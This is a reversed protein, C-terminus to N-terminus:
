LVVEKRPHKGALVKRQQRENVHTYIQTTSISSHGLIQQIYRIDVGKELLLTAVSHRFMHPTVHRPIGAEKCRQKLMIRASQEVYRNKRKNTFFWPTGEPLMRAHEKLLSLTEGHCVQVVREKEGKGMIRVFGKKLDVNERTLTCIESIRAGTAFLLEILAIERVIVAYGPLTKDEFGNKLKYLYRFLKKIEGLTLTKPLMKPERIQVKMKRFPNVTITDEAELYTFFAKLTAVKRKVTKEKGKEYLKKIYPRLIIKDIEGVRGEFGTEGLFGAFQALDITYAKLTKPSLNKEYQCHFLFAEVGQRIEM